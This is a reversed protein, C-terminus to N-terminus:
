VVIVIKGKHEGKAFKTFAEKINDLPYPGDIVPKMTGENFMTKMFELDKNPKLATIRISKGEFGAVWGFLLMRLVKGLDGGVTVYKGGPNLARMYSSISRDTKADLILDYTKGTKTFDEKRYDIVHDYGMERLMDLKMASDVGTAEVGIQKAIQIGFTGVGGGAGNILIKHGAKLEGVDILGQVALMSAQPTAAAQEFSMGAPKIALSNPAACVYEAFGGWGKGSLDGFVDDGVNLEKVRPGVAEIIGAIDSGLITLKPKKRGNMVKTVVDAGGLLAWDWDNISCAKVRILVENEKPQPKEVDRIHLVEPGGYQTYVAAKM